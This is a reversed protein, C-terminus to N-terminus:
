IPLVVTQEVGQIDRDAARFRSKSRPRSLNSSKPVPIEEGSVSTAPSSSLFLGSGRALATRVSIQQSLRGTLDDKPTARDMLQQGQDGHSRLSSGNVAAHEMNNEVVNFDDEVSPSSTFGHFQPSEVDSPEEDTSQVEKREKAPTLDQQNVDVKILPCTQNETQDTDPVGALKPTAPILANISDDVASVLGAGKSNSISAVSSREVSPSKSHRKLFEMIAHCSARVLKPEILEEFTVQDHGDLEGDMQDVHTCDEDDDPAQLKQYVRKGTEEDYFKEVRPIDRKALSIPFAGDEPIGKVEATQYNSIQPEFNDSLALRRFAIIAGEMIDSLALSPLISVDSPLIPLDPHTVRVSHEVDRMIQDSVAGDLVDATAPEDYNLEADEDARNGNEYYEKYFDEDVQQEKRSNRRQKKGQKRTTDVEYQHEPQPDWRQQFPFPPASLVLDEEVCEEATLSIKTEWPTTDNPLYEGNTQDSSPGLNRQGAIERSGSDSLSTSYKHLPKALKMLRESIKREDNKTKPARLGLSGFLLRRTSALDLRSRRTEDGQQTSSSIQELTGSPNELEKTSTMTAPDGVAVEVGGADLSRLLAQRRSEFDSPQLTLASESLRSSSEALSSENMLYENYQVFSADPPLIGKLKLTQLHNHRKRRENRKKTASNGGGPRV